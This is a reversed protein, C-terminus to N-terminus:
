ESRYTKPSCGTLKKFVNSFYFSDDFGVQAAVEYIKLNTSRLLLKAHEIRVANIYESVAMGTAAKFVQGFYNRSMDAGRAVDAVGIDRMYSREIFAMAESVARHMRAEDAVPSAPTKEPMQRQPLAPRVRTQAIRELLLILMQHIEERLLPKLMYKMVGYNIARQAYEFKDYGSLVVAPMPDHLEERCVRLVELGDMVPMCIDLIMGDPRDGRIVDLAQVGNSATTVHVNEMEGAVQALTDRILWEDDCILIHTKM